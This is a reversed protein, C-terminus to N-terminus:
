PEPTQLREQRGGVGHMLLLLALIGAVVAPLRRWALTAMRESWELPRPHLYEGGAPALYRGGGGWTWYLQFLPAPAGPQGAPWVDVEIQHYGPSLPVEVQALNQPMLERQELVPEGNVRVRYPTNAKAHLQIPTALPYDLWGEWRGTVGQLLLFRPATPGTTNVGTWGRPGKAAMLGAMALLVVGGLAAWRPATLLRRLEERAAPDTGTHGRLPQLLPYLAAATAAIGASTLALTAAGTRATGAAPPLPVGQWWAQWLSLQPLWLWQSEVRHFGWLQNWWGIASSRLYIWNMVAGWALAGWLVARRGPSLRRPHMVLTAIGPLLMAAAPLVFRPGTTWGGHWTWFLAHFVVTFLLLGYAARCFRWVAPELAHRCLLPVLVAPFFVLLGREPSMLLGHLGTLLPTTFDQGVYGSTLFGGRLLKNQLLTLAIGVALGCGGAMLARRRAGMGWGWLLVMAVLPVMAMRALVAGLAGALAALQVWRRRDMGGGPSARHMAVMVLALGATALVESYLSQGAVLLPCGLLAAGVAAFRAGGRLVGALAVAALGVLLLSSLPLLSLDSSVVWGRARLGSEILYFPVAVLPTGMGYGTFRQGFIEEDFVLSGREALSRATFGMLIEDSTELRGRFFLLGLGVVLLM